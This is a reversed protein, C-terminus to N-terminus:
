ANIVEKVSDFVMDVTIEKMCSMDKCRKKFCPNCSLNARIIKHKVGYPGTKLPSTPGFLAIVVPDKMAAAVQMPGTDTSIVIDCRQYLYALEKLNTKGALNLAKTKMMSLINEIAAKDNESGTFVVESGFVDKIRDALCAFRDLEWLKSDWRAMPNIAILISSDIINGLLHHVRNKDKDCIPIMGDWTFSNVGLHRAICLYRDLAHMDPDPFVVKETFFISSGERAGDLGIKRKGRALFTLMGSRFLGQHDIVIDYKQRKIQKIFNFIEKGVTICEGGKIFRKLWNKRPFIFLRNICPHDELVGSADEEVLWDIRAFPFRDKLVELLPLSHIVDGISSLKIVLITEINDDV